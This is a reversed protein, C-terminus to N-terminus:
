CGGTPAAPDRVPGEREYWRMYDGPSTFYGSYAPHLCGTTPTEVVEQPQLADPPPTTNALPDAACEM